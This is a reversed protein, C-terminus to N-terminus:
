YDGEEDYVVMAINYLMKWVERSKMGVRKSYEDIVVSLITFGNHPEDPLLDLVEDIRRADYLLEKLINDNM